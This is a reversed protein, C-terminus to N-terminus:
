LITLLLLLPVFIFCSLLSFINTIIDNNVNAVSDQSSGCVTCHVSYVVIYQVYTYACYEYLVTCELHSTIVNIYNQKTYLWIFTNNLTTSGSKCFGCFKMSYASSESGHDFLLPFVWCESLFYCKKLTQDLDVYHYMSYTYTYYLSVTYWATNDWSNRSFRSLLWSTKINCIFLEFFSRLHEQSSQM